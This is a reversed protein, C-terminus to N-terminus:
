SFYVKGSAFPTECFFFCFFYNIQTNVLDDTPIIMEVGAPFAYIGPLSSIVIRSNEQNDASYFQVEFISELGNANAEKFNDAYDAYLDYIGLDIVEKAKEEALSWEGRTLYVKALMALAAGKTARGLNNGTSYSLSLNETAFIFDNILTSYITEADTREIDTNETSTYSNLILPVDGFLRVLNFYFLGRLFRAEGLLQNKLYQDMEIEPIKEVAVNARSIGSYSGQWAEGVYINNATITFHDLQQLNPNNLNSRVYCDDSSADQILWLTNNYQNVSGLVDYISYVAAVADNESQYFNEVTPIGKISLDIAKECASLTAILLILLHSIKKM